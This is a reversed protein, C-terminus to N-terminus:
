GCGTPALDELFADILDADSVARPRWGTLARLRASSGVIRAPDDARVRAPDVELRAPVGLRAALAAALADLRRPVGSAVNLVRAEGPAGPRELVALFALLLDQLSGVDREIAVNGVPIVVPAGEAGLLARHVHPLFFTPAQTRHTHNFLRLVSTPGPRRPAADLLVVEAARKTRAYTSSPEVPRAEDLVVGAELEPGAPARYVLATSAFVLHAGPAHRSLLAELLATGGLNTRWAREPDAECAGVSSIAALHVVADWAGSSLEGELAAADLLDARAATAEHGAAGLAGALARGVFGGAGTLLVKM